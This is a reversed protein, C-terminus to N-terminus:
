SSASSHAAFSGEARMPCTSTRGTTMRCASTLAQRRELLEEALLVSADERGQDADEAVEVEGLVGKLLSDGDGELPPWPVAHGAIRGAPEHRHGPVARDVADTPV